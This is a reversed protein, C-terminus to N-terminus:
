PKLPKGTKGAAEAKRRAWYAKMAASIAESAAAKKPPKTPTAKRVAAAKRAAWIKKMRESQAKRQAPTRYGRKAAAESIIERPIRSGRLEARVAKIESEIVGKQRELEEVALELLRNRDM